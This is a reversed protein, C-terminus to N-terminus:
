ISQNVLKLVLRLHGFHLLVYYNKLTKDETGM